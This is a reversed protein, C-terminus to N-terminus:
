RGVLPVFRFIGCEETKIGQETKTIKVMKQSLKNGIPIVLRGGTKLQHILVNPVKDTAATVVIADFPAEDRLGLRGDNIIVTVNSINLNKLKERAKIALLPSIEITFVKKCLKSLITASYGSGTGLELVTESGNLELLETMFATTYPQSITQQEGIPLPSDTYAKDKFSQPVFNERPIESFVELVKNNKIGRAKLQEEVMQKRLDEYNM